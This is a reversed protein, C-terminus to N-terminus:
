DVNYTIIKSNPISNATLFQEATALSNYFAGTGHYGYYIAGSIGEKDLLSIVPMSTSYHNFLPINIGGIGCGIDLISEINEPLFEKIEEFERCMEETYLRSIENKRSSEVKKIFYRDYLAGLLRIRRFYRNLPRQYATRQLLIYYFAGEPLIFSKMKEDGRLAAVLDKM